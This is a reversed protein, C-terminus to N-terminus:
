GRQSPASALRLDGVGSGSVDFGQAGGKKAGVRWDQEVASGAAAAEHVFVEGAGGVDGVGVGFGGDERCQVSFEAEQVIM